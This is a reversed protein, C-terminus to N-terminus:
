EFDLVKRECCWMGCAEQVKGFNYFVSLVLLPTVEDIDKAEVGQVLGKLHWFDCGVWRSHEECM